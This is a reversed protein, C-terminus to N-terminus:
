DQKSFAYPIKGDAGPPTEKPDIIVRGATNSFTSIEVSKKSPKQYFRRQPKDKPATKPSRRRKIKFLFMPHHIIILLHTSHGTIKNLVFFTLIKRAMGSHVRFLKATQKAIARQISQTISAPSAKRIRLLPNLIAGPTQAGM